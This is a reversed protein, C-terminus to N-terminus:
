FPHRKFRPQLQSQLLGATQAGALREAHGRLLYRGPELRISCRMSGRIRYSSTGTGAEEIEIEADALDHPDCDISRVFQGDRVFALHFVASRPTSEISPFASSGPERRSFSLESDFTLTTPFRLVLELERPSQALALPELAGSSLEVVVATVACVLGLAISLAAHVPSPRAVPVHRDLEGPEPQDGIGLAREVLLELLLPIGPSLFAELTISTGDQKRLRLEFQSPADPKEPIHVVYLQAIDAVPVREVVRGLLGHRVNTYQLLDGSIEIRLRMWIRGLAIYAMIAVLAAPVFLWPRLGIRFFTWLVFVVAAIALASVVLDKGRHREVYDIRLEGATGSRPSSRFAPGQGFRGRWRASVGRIPPDPAREAESFVAEVYKQSEALIGYM